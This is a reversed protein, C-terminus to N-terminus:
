HSSQQGEEIDTSGAGPQSRLATWISRKDPVAMEPHRAIVAEIGVLVPIFGPQKRISAETVESLLRSL